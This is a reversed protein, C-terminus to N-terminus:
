YSRIFEDHYISNFNQSVFAHCVVTEREKKEREREEEKGEHGKKMTM